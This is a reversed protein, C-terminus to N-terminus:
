CRFYVGSSTFILKRRSLKSEQFTWGRTSWACSKLVFDLSPQAMIFTRGDVRESIQTIQPARAHARPLGAMCDSGAAGVITLLAKKYIIDMAEVTSTLEEPENLICISDVWLYQQGLARTVKMADLITRPIVGTSAASGSINREARFCKASGWVYSLAVYPTDFSRVVVKLQQVDLLRLKVRDGAGHLAKM